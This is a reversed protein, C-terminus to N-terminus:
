QRIVDVDQVVLLQKSILASLSITAVPKAVSVIMGSMGPSDEKLAGNSCQLSRALYGSRYERVFDIAITPPELDAHSAAYANAECPAFTCQIM